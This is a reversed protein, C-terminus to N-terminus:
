SREPRGFHIRGDDWWPQIMAGSGRLARHAAGMRAAGVLVWIEDVNAVEAIHARLSALGVDDPVVIELRVNSGIILAPIAGDAAQWEIRRARGPSYHGLAADVVPSSITTASDTVLAM